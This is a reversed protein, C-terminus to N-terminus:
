THVRTAVPQTFSAVPSMGGRGGSILSRPNNIQLSPPRPWVDQKLSATHTHTNTNATRTIYINHGIHHTWSLDESINIGLFRFSKVREVATGGIHIPAHEGQLRRYDVILELVMMLNASSVAMIPQM